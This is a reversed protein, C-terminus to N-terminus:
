DHLAETVDSYAGERLKSFPGEQLVFDLDIHWGEKNGGRLFLSDRIKNLVSAWESIGHTDRLRAKLKAEHRETLKQVQPLGFEDAFDNWVRLAARLDYIGEPDTEWPRQLYERM